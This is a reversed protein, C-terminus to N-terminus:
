GPRHGPYPHLALLVALAPLHRTNAAVLVLLRSTSTSHTKNASRDAEFELPDSKCLLIIAVAILIMLVHHYGLFPVWGADNDAGHDM